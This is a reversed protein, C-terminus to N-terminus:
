TTVTWSPICGIRSKKTAEFAKGFSKVFLSWWSWLIALQHLEMKLQLHRDLEVGSVSERWKKHADALDPYNTLWSTPDREFGSLFALRWRCM